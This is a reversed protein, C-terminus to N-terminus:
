QGACDLPLVNLLLVGKSQMLGDSLVFADTRCSIRVFREVQIARYSLNVFDIHWHAAMCFGLSQRTLELTGVRNVLRLRGRRMGM